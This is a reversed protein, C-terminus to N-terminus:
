EIEFLPDGGEVAQGPSVFIKRVVGASEAQIENEMKMAELVVIGQGAAVPEGERALVTVVRGPMLAAVRQPGPVHYKEASQRALHTLPDLVEVTVRGEPASVQYEGNGRRAVAVEFQEGAVLLSRLRPGSHLSSVTFIRDGLRVDYGGDARREVRVRAERGNCRVVLEM